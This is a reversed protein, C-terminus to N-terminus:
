RADHHIRPQDDRERSRPHTTSHRGTAPHVAKDPRHQRTAARHRQEHTRLIAAVAAPRTKPLTGIGTIRHRQEDLPQWGRSRGGLTDERTLHGILIAVGHPDTAHM